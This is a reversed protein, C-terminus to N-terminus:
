YKMSDFFSFISTYVRALGTYVIWSPIEIEVEDVQLGDERMQFVARESIYKIIIWTYTKGKITIIYKRKNSGPKFM